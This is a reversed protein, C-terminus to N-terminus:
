LPKAGTSDSHTPTYIDQFPLKYHRCTPGSGRGDEKIKGRGAEPKLDTQLRNERPLLVVLNNKDFHGSLFSVTEKNKKLYVICTYLVFESMFSQSASYLADIM